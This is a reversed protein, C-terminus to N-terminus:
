VATACDIETCGGTAGNPCVPITLLRAEPCRNVLGWYVELFLALEVNQRLLQPDNRVGSVRVLEGRAAQFTGAPYLLIKVTDPWKAPPNVGGFDTDVGTCYADQWNYIWQPRVKINAFLTNIYADAKAISDFGCRKTLDSRIAGLLWLPMVAELVMNPSFRHRYKMDMAQLEIYGLITSVLGGSAAALPPVVVARAEMATVLACSLQHEFAALRKAVASAIWEPFAWATLMPAEICLSCINLRIEDWEPCPVSYCPKPDTRAIEEAETWCGVGSGYVDSFDEDRVIRVGGRRIVISPLNIRGETSAPPCLTYDIESPSCFGQGFTKTKTNFTIQSPDGNKDLIGKVEMPNMDPTLIPTQGAHSWRAIPLQRMDSGSHDSLSQLVDVCASGLDNETKIEDGTRIGGADREAKLVFTATGTSGLTKRGAKHPMLGMPASGVLEGKPEVVEGEIAAPSADALPEDDRGDDAKPPEDGDTDDTDDSADLPKALITNHIDAIVELASADDETLNKKARVTDFRDRAARGLADLNAGDPLHSEIFKAKQAETMDDGHKNVKDILKDLLDSASAAVSKGTM